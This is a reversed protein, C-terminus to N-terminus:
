AAPAKHCVAEVNNGDGDLVFAGYYNPHYVPRLGPAGNDVAGAAVAAGWFADVAARDAAQFAVHLPGSVPEGPYLWFSPMGDRGFGVRSGYELQVTYGLPELAREYLSRASSPDSVTLALHDLM